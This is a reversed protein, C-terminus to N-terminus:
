VEDKSIPRFTFPHHGNMEGIEIRWIVFRRPNTNPTPYPSHPLTFTIAFSLNFIVGILSFHHFPFLLRREQVGRIDASEAAFM